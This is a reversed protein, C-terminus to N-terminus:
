KRTTVVERESRERGIALCAKLLYDQDKTSTKKKKTSTKMLREKMNSEGALSRGEGRNSPSLTDKANRRIM